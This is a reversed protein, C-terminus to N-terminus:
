VLEYSITAEDGEGTVTVSAFGVFTDACGNQAGPQIVQSDVEIIEGTEQHRLGVTLTAPGSGQNPIYWGAYLDVDVTDDWLGADFAADLDIIVTETGGASTNDGSWNLFAGNSGCEYGVNGSLFRTSTDLDRESLPWKYEIYLDYDNLLLCDTQLKATADGFLAFRAPDDDSEIDSNIGPTAGIEEGDLLTNFLRQGRTDSFDSNVYDTYGVFAAAGAGAFADALSSDFASRCSSVYVIADDLSAYASIFRPTISFQGNAIVVRQTLLDGLNSLTEIVGSNRDGTNVVVGYRSHSDGHSSIAVAEYGQLNRLDQLTVNEDTVLDNFRTTVDYGADSLMAAIEDSEDYQGFQWRYSGIILAEGCAESIPTAVAVPATAANSVLSEQVGGGSREGDYELENGVVAFLIGDISQWFVSEPTTAISGPLVRPDNALDSAAQAIADSVSAGDAILERVMDETSDALNLLETVEAETPADIGVIGVTDSLSTDTQVVFQTTGITDLLVALSNSFIGDGATADGHIQAGDDFLQVLLSGLVGNVSSFLNVVSTASANRVSAAFRVREPTGVLMQSIDSTLNVSPTTDLARLVDKIEDIITQQPTTPAGGSFGRKSVSTGMPIGSDILTDGAKGTLSVSGNIAHNGEFTASNVGSGTTLKVSGYVNGTSGLLSGDSVFVDNGSGLNGSLSSTSVNALGVRDNGSSTSISIGGGFNCAVLYLENNGNGMSATVLRNHTLGSVSVKDNGSGMLLKIGFASLEALPITMTSEGNVTTGNGTVTLNEGEVTISIDNSSSDGKLEIVSGKIRVGVNGALLKRSELLASQSFMPVSKRCSAGRKQIFADVLQRCISNWSRRIM